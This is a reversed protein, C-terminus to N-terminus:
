RTGAMDLEARAWDIVRDTAEAGDTAVQWAAAAMTAAQDPAILRSLAKQLGDSDRIMRAAGAKSLRAYSAIHRSVFPGYLIASGLAAPAYPDHGKMGRKLSGAMFTVPSLRYWLGMEDCGDALLVQTEERPADDRSWRLARWGERAMIEAMRDADEPRAPVLVLLLRHALRSARRHADLVTELEELQVMAALWIPRGALGAALDDRLADDCTLATGGEQLPGTIEILAQEVGHRQLKRATNASSALVTHFGALLRRSQTVRLGWRPEDFADEEAEALLMPVNQRRAQNLLTPRLHGTMWILLDPRWHDLFATVAASDDDPLTSHLLSPDDPLPQTGAETFSLLITYGEDQAILRNALQEAAKQRAALPCHIWILVGRPRPPAAEAAQPRAARRTLAKYAAFGATRAM